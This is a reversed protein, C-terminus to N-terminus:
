AVEPGVKGYGYSGCYIIRPNVAKITAYDLGLRDMVQPRNNHILVDVSEAIKMLAERGADQKLDLVLSRKNRNCTLYLAAMNPNRSAGLSRNSDGRPPEVKIVEAGMDALIQCAWPGLVVSTLELIRVGELPGSM